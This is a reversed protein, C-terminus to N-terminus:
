CGLLALGCLEWAARPFLQPHSVKQPIHVQGITGGRPAFGLCASPVSEGKWFQM